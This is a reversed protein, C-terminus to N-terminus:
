VLFPMESTRLCKFFFFDDSVNQLGLILNDPEERWLGQHCWGQTDKFLLNQLGAPEPHPSLLPLETCGPDQSPLSPQQSTGVADRRM